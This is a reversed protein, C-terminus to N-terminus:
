TAVSLQDLDLHQQDEGPPQPIGSVGESTLYKIVVARAVQKLGEDIDPVSLVKLAMTAHSFAPVKAVRAVPLAPSSVCKVLDQIFGAKVTVEAERDM